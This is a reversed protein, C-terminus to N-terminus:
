ASNGNKAKPQLFGVKEKDVLDAVGFSGLLMACFATYQLLTAGAYFALGTGAAWCLLTLTYKKRWRSFKEIM